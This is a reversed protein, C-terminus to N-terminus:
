IPILRQMLNVIDSSAIRCRPLVTDYFLLVEVGSGGKWDLVRQRRPYRVVSTLTTCELGFWYWVRGVSVLDTCMKGSQESVVRGMIIISTGVQPKEIPDREDM